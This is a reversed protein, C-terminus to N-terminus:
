LSVPMYCGNPERTFVNWLYAPVPAPDKDAEPALERFRKLDQRSLADCIKNRVGEIHSSRLVINMELCKVTLHRVLCMVKESRSTLTNIIQTM